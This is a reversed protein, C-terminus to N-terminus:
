ATRFNNEVIREKLELRLDEPLARYQEFERTLLELIEEHKKDLNGTPIAIPTGFKKLNRKWARRFLSGGTMYKEPDVVDVLIFHADAYKLSRIDTIEEWAIMRHVTHLKIEVGYSDIILGQDKKRAQQFINVTCGGFFLTNIAMLAMVYPQYPEHFTSAGKLLIPIGMVSMFLAVVALLYLRTKRLPIKYPYDM